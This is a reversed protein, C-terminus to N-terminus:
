LPVHKEYLKLVIYINQNNKWIIYLVYNMIFTHGKHLNIYKKKYLNINAIFRGLTKNKANGLTPWKPQFSKTFLLKQWYFKSTM